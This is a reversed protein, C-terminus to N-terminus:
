GWLQRAARLIVYGLYLAHMLSQSLRCQRQLEGELLAIRDVDHAQRLRCVFLSHMHVPAMKEHLDWKRKCREAKPADM